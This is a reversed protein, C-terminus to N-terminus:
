VDPLARPATSRFVPEGRLQATAGPVQAFLRRIDDFFRRLDRRWFAAHAWHSISGSRYVSEITEHGALAASLNGQQAPGSHRRAGRRKRRLAEAKVPLLCERVLEQRFRERGYRPGAPGASIGGDPKLNNM